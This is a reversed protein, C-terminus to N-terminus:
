PLGSTFVRIFPICDRGLSLFYVMAEIRDINCNLDSMRSIDHHQM